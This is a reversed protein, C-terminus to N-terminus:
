CVPDGLNDEKRTSGEAKLLGKSVAMSINLSTDCEM